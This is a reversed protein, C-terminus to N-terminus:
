VQGARPGAGSNMPQNVFRRLCELGREPEAAFDIRFLEEMRRLEEPLFRWWQLAELLSVIEDSFRRRLERAPNGVVIAYNRVPRTVIAGAGIIAGDGVTVGPLLVAGHGIWVDHGIRVEEPQQLKKLEARWLAKGVYTTLHTM